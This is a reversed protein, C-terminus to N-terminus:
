FEEFYYFLERLSLNLTKRIIHIIINMPAPLHLNFGIIDVLSHKKKRSSCISNFSLFYKQKNSKYSRDNKPERKRRQKEKGTGWGGMRGRRRRGEEKVSCVM